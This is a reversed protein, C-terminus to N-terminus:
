GNRVERALRRFKESWEAEAATIGRTYGALFGVLGILVTVGGWFVMDGM